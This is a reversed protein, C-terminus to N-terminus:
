SWTKRTVAELDDDGVVAAVSGSVSAIRSPTDLLAQCRVPPEESHDRQPGVGAAGRAGSVAYEIFGGALVDEEDVGVVGDAVQRKLADGFCHGRRWGIPDGEVLNRHVPTGATQVTRWGCASTGRALAKVVSVTWLTKRRASISRWCSRNSSPSGEPCSTLKAKEYMRFAARNRM